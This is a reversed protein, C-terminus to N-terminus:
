PMCFSAMGGSGAKTFECRADTRHRLALTYNALAGQVSGNVFQAALFGTVPQGYFSQGDATTFADHGTSIGFGFRAWGSEFQFPFNWSVLNSALVRSPPKPTPDYPNDVDDNQRFTIVQTAHCLPMDTSFGPAKVGLFPDSHANGVRAANADHEAFAFYTGCSEGPAVFLNEFPPIAHDGVYKPDTYFRKTPFTIVWESNAGLAPSTWFENSITGAMFAATVADIGRAFTLTSPAGAAYTSASLSTASALNPTLAGSATHELGKSALHFDALADAIYGLVTGRAVNVIMASGTLGGSPAVLDTAADQSWYGGSAWATHLRACDTPSGGALDPLEDDNDAPPPPPSLAKASAGTVVGMEVVEIHGERVRALGTPGGDKGQATSGDFARTTFAVSHQASGAIDPVTCSPDSTVLKAGNGDAVVAATWVDGVALYVNVDLVDRSNYGELFRVKVAKADRGQNTLTVLTDQGGNVTYYPYVLAEGLGQPNLYVAQSVDCAVIAVFACAIKSLSRNSPKRM